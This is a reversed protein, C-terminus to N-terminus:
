YVEYPYEAKLFKEIKDEREFFQEDTTDETVEDVPGWAEGSDSIADLDMILVEVSGVCDSYVATVCGGSVEICIKPKM